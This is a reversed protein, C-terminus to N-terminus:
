VAHPQVPRRAAFKHNVNWFVRDVSQSPVASGSKSFCDRLDIRPAAPRVSSCLASTTTPSHISLTARAIAPPTERRSGSRRNPRLRPAKMRNDRDGSGASAAFSHTAGFLTHVTLSLDFHTLTWFSL